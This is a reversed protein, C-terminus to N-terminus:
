TRRVARVGALQEVAVRGGADAPVPDPWVGSVSASSSGVVRTSARRARGRTGRTSSTPISRGLVARLRQVPRRAAREACQRRDAGAVAVPRTAIAGEPSAAIANMPVACSARTETSSTVGGAIADAVTGAVAVVPWVTAILAPADSAHDPEGGALRGPGEAVARVPAPADTM